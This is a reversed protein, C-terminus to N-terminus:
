VIPVRPFSAPTSLLTTVARDSITALHEIADLHDAGIKAFPTAPAPHLLAHTLDRVSKAAADSSSTEPM